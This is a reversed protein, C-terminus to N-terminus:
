ASAALKICTALVETAQGVEKLVPFTPAIRINRDRPDNGYPFPAGAGTLKVGADAALQVIKKATGDPGDLSVFYGGKPKTWTAIGLGGLERELVQDVLDFKPKVLEAHKKMHERLGEINKFLQLHRIQNVKDPGITQVSLHRKIDAINAESAALCAVGSGPHSIKSTSAFEIVRDANGAAVCLSMINALDPRDDTLHHEAYANDWLIRFDPAASMRALRDTTEESYCCGTPNSYKPVCWIGKIDHDSSVLAEVQDMDPGDDNVDVMVLEFGLHETVKFHRDYGPTPCIFKRSELRHLPGDGGPVGFQCGRALTDYMMNLSSNGGVVINDTSVQLIESFLAKMPPLGDVGGYNRTDTGDLLYQDGPLSLLDNALDLQKSSPKGRTIDLSLQMAEFDQ